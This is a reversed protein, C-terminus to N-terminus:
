IILKINDLEQTKAVRRGHLRGKKIVYNPIPLLDLTWRIMSRSSQNEREHSALFATFSAKIETIFLMRQMAGNPITKWKEFVKKIM